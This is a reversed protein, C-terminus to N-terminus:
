TEPDKKNNTIQLEYHIIHLSKISLYTSERIYHILLNYSLRRM